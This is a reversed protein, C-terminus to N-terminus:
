ICNHKNKEVNSGRGEHWLLCVTIFGISCMETVLQSM